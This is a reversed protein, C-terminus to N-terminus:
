FFHGFIYFNHVVHSVSIINKVLQSAKSVNEPAGRIVLFPGDCALEAGSENSVRHLNLSRKGLIVPWFKEVDIKEEVEIFTHDYFLANNVIGDEFDAGQFLPFFNLCYFRKKIVKQIMMDVIQELAAVQQLIINQEEFTMCKDSNNM